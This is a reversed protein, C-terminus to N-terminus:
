QLSHDKIDHQFHRVAQLKKISCEELLLKTVLPQSWPQQTLGNLRRVSDMWARGPGTEIHLDVSFDILSVANLGLYSSAIREFEERDIKIGLISCPQDWGSITTNVDPRYIAARTPTLTRPQGGATTRLSGKLVTNVQYFSEHPQTSIIV